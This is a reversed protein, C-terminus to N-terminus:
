SGELTYTFECRHGGELITQSQEVGVGPLFARAFPGDRHCSFAVGVAELGKARYLDAYSCRDVHFRLTTGTLEDLHLDLRGDGGLVGWVEWLDALTPEPYRERFRAAGQNALEVVTEAFVERADREGLRAELVGLFAAAVDIEIARQQLPTVPGALERTKDTM